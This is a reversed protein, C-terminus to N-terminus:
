LVKTNRDYHKKSKQTQFNPDFLDDYKWINFKGIILKLILSGLCPYRTVGSGFELGWIGMDIKM